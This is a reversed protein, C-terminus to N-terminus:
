RVVDLLDVNAGITRSLAVTTTGGDKPVAFGVRIGQGASDRCYPAEFQITNLSNSRGKTSPTFDGESSLDTGTSENGTKKDLSSTHTYSLQVQIANADTAGPKTDGKGNGGVPISVGLGVGGEGGSSGGHASGAGKEGRSDEHSGGGGIVSGGIGISFSSHSKKKEKEPAPPALKDMAAILSQGDIVVEYDGPALDKLVIQGNADTAVHRVPKGDRTVDALIGVLWTSGKNAHALTPLLLFAGCLLAASLRSKM